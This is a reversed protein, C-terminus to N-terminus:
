EGSRWLPRPLPFSPPFPMVVSPRRRRRRKERVWKGGTTGMKDSGCECFFVPSPTPPFVVNTSWLVRGGAWRGKRRFKIETSESQCRIDFNGEKHTHTHTLHPPQPFPPSFLHRFFRKEEATYLLRHFLHLLNKRKASQDKGGKEKLDTVATM